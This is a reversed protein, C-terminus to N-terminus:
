EAGIMTVLTTTFGACACATDQPGTAQLGAPPQLGFVQLGRPPGHPGAFQRGRLQGFLLTPVRDTPASRDTM